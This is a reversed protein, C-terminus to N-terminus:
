RRLAAIYRPQCNLWPEVQMYSWLPTIPIESEQLGRGTCVGSSLHQQHQRDQQLNSQLPMAPLMMWAMAVVLAIMPPMM